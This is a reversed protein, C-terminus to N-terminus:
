FAFTTLVLINSTEHLMKGGEFSAMALYIETVSIKLLKFAQFHRSQITNISLGHPFLLFSPQSNDVYLWAAFPGFPLTTLMNGLSTM